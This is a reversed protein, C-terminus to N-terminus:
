AASRRLALLLEASVERIRKLRQQVQLLEEEDLRGLFTEADVSEIHQQMLRKLEDRLEDVSRSAMTRAKVQLKTLCGRPCPATRLPTPYFDYRRHRIRGSPKICSM